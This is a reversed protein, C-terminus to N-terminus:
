LISLVMTPPSAMHLIMRILQTCYSSLVRYIDTLASTSVIIFHICHEGIATGRRENSKHIGLATMHFVDGGEYNDNLTIELSDYSDKHWDLGGTPLGVRVLYMTDIPVDGFSDYFMDIINETDDKGILDVLENAHLKKHYLEDANDGHLVWSEFDDKVGKRVPVDIGSTFADEMHKVLADCSEVSILEHKVSFTADDKAGVDQIIKLRRYSPIDEEIPENEEDGYILLRNNNCSYGGDCTPPAGDECPVCECNNNCDSADCCPEFAAGNGVTCKAQYYINNNM